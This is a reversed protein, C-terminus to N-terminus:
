KKTMAWANAPIGIYTYGDKPRRMIVSGAALTINDGVKIGQLIVSHTGIYNLDGITVHGMIGADSMISNFSGIVTDHGVETKHNFVNFDGLRVNCSFQCERQIINGKGMVLSKEDFLCLDPPVINPFSVIPNSIASVVKKLTSPKAIAVVVDIPTKWNNLTDMGGLCVGYECHSGVELGDDFFGILDWQPEKQNDNIYNILCAIERGYGGMGYIALEKKM